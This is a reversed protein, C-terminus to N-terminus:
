VHARGIETRVRMRAYLRNKDKKKQDLQVRLILNDACVWQYLGFLIVRLNDSITYERRLRKAEWWKYACLGSVAGSYCGLVFAAPNVAATKMMANAMLCVAHLVWTGTVAGTVVMTSMALSFGIIGMINRRTLQSTHTEMVRRSNLIHPVTGRHLIICLTTCLKLKIIIMHTTAHTTAHVGARLLGCIFTTVMETDPM